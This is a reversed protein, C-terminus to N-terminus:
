SHDILCCVWKGHSRWDFGWGPASKVLGDAIEKGRSDTIDLFNIQLPTRQPDGQGQVPILQALISCAGVPNRGDGPTLCEVGPFLGEVGPSSKEVEPSSLEVGPSSGEVGPSSKEVGPSM